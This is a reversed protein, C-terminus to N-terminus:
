RKHKYIFKTTYFGIVRECEEISNLEGTHYERGLFKSLAVSWQIDGLEKILELHHANAEEEDATNFVLNNNEIRCIGKRVWKAVKDNFEGVEANLETLAYVMNDCSPLCTTMAKEQYDNM